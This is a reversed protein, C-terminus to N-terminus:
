LYGEMILYQAARSLLIENTDGNRIPLEKSINEDLLIVLRSRSERPIISFTAISKKNANKIDYIMSYSGKEKVSVTGADHLDNIIEGFPSIEYKVSNVDAYITRLKLQGFKKACLEANKLRRTNIDEVKEAVGEAESRGLKDLMNEFIEGSLQCTSFMDLDKLADIILDKVYYSGYKMILGSKNLQPANVNYGIALYRQGREHSLPVFSFITDKIELIVNGELDKLTGKYKDKKGKANLPNTFEFKKVKDVLVNDDDLKVKQASLSVSFFLLALSIKLYKM